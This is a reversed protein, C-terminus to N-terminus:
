TASIPDQLLKLSYRRMPRSGGDISFQYIQNQAHPSQEAPDSIRFKRGNNRRLLWGFSIKAKNDLPNEAGILTGFLENDHALDVLESFRYPKLPVMADVLKQMDISDRDGSYNLNAPDLCPSSFGAHEVIAAVIESWACFSPLKRTPPPCGSRFWYSVLSWLAARIQPSRTVIDQIELPSKFIHDEPKSEVLFLEVQRLRRRLDPSVTAGNGTIIVTLANPVTIEHSQGLVRGQIM